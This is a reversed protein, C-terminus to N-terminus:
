KGKVEDFFSFIKNLLEEGKTKASFAVVEVDNKSAYETINRVFGAVQNENNYILLVSLADIILFKEGLIEKMFSNVAYSLDNLQTPSIQLVDEEVKGSSVCDIFFIKKVDIKREDLLKKMRKQNKNLSVYIGVGGLSRIAGVIRPQMKEISAIELKSKVMIRDVTL